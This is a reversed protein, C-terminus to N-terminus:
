LCVFKDAYGSVSSIYTSLLNYSVYLKLSSATNDFCSSGIDAARYTNKFVVKNLNTCSNFASICLTSLNKPLEIQTLSSCGGFAAVEIVNLESDDSFIISKM